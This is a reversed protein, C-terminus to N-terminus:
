SKYFETAVDDLFSVARGTTLDFTGRAYPRRERRLSPPSPKNMPLVHAKGPTLGRM